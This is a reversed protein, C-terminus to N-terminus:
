RRLLNEARDSAGYLVPPYGPQYGRDQYVYVNWAGDAPMIRETGKLEYTEDNWVFKIQSGRVEGAQRFGLEAHPTFSILFRGRDPVYVWIMSGSATGHADGHNWEMYKGNLRLQPSALSMQVDNMQFDRATGNSGSPSGVTIYEVIKEGTGPNVMLDVAVTEGDNVQKSALVSTLPIETWGDLDMWKHMSATVTLPKFNLQFRGSGLANVQLDYGFFRKQDMDELIRHNTNSDDAGGGGIHLEQGKPRPPEVMTRYRLVFQDTTWTASRIQQGQLAGAFLFLAVSTFKM